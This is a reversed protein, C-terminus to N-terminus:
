RNSFHPNSAASLLLMCPLFFYYILHDAFGFLLERFKAVESDDTLDINDDVVVTALSQFLAKLFKDQSESSRAYEFTLRVLAPRNYKDGYKSAPKETDESFASSATSSPLLGPANSSM